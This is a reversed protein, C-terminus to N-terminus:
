LSGNAVLSFTSLGQHEVEFVFCDYIKRKRKKDGEGDAIVRVERSSRLAGMDAIQSFDGARLEAVYDEIALQNHAPKAGSRFGLGYYGIERKRISCM